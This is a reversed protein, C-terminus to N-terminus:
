VNLQEIVQDITPRDQSNKSMMSYILEIPCNSDDYLKHAFDSPRSDPDKVLQKLAVSTGITTVYPYKKNNYIYYYLVGLAYIDMSKTKSNKDWGEPSQYNATGQIKVANKCYIEDTEETCVDIKSLGFDIITPIDNSSVMVNDLKIDLHVVNKDHIYKIGLAIKHCISKKRHTSIRSLSLNRITKSNKMFPLLIYNATSDASFSLMSIVYPCQNGIMEMIRPEYSNHIIDIKTIKLAHDIGGIFVHYTDGFRSHGIQRFKDDLNFLRKAAKLKLYKNVDASTNTKHTSKCSTHLDSEDNKVVTTEEVPEHDTTDCM